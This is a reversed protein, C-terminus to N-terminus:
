KPQEDAPPLVHKAWAVVTPDGRRKLECNSSLKKRNSGSFQGTINVHGKGEEPRYTIVFGAATVIEADIEVIAFGENGALVDEESVEDALYASVADSGADPEFAQRSPKADLGRPFNGPDPPVRRYLKGALIQAGPKRKSDSM